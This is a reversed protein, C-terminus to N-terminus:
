WMTFKVIGFVLLFYMTIFYIIPLYFLSLGIVVCINYLCDTLTKKKKSRRFFLSMGFVSSIFFSFSVLKYSSGFGVIRDFFLLWIHVLFILAFLIWFKKFKWFAKSIPKSIPQQLTATEESQNLNNQPNLQDNDQNQSVESDM